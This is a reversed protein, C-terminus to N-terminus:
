EAANTLPQPEPHSGRVGLVAGWKSFMSLAWGAFSPQIADSAGDKATVSEKSLDENGLEEDTDDAAGSERRHQELNVDEPLEEEEGDGDGEERM